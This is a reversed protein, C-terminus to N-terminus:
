RNTVSRSLAVDKWNGQTIQPFLTPTQEKQQIRLSERSVNRRVYAYIEEISNWGDDNTDAEGKLGRLLYYTFLGHEKEPYANSVQGATTASLSVISSGPPEVHFLTARSKVLLDAARAAVGSFCSDMFVYVHKLDAKNLDEYFSTLKYGTQQIIKTDADYPMLYPENLKDGGPLGHGAFYVYLTSNKDLNKAIYDLLYGKIRSKTADKDILMVINKEPVGLVRIFYDRVILADKRAYDVKPLHSYDEIGIVLGWDGPYPKISLDKPLLVPDSFFKKLHFPKSEILEEDVFVNVAWKGPIKAAPQDKISIRHWATVEPLYKDKTVRLPYNKSDLYVKGDPGIWEWRLNHTHSLNEFKLLAVVQEDQTNFDNTLGLPMGIKGSTDINQALVVGAFKPPPTKQIQRKPACSFLILIISAGIVAKLVNAVINGGTMKM